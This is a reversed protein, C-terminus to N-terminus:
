RAPLDFSGTFAAASGDERVRWHYRGGQVFPGVTMGAAHVAPADVLLLAFDASRSLEFSYRRGPVGPWRIEVRGDPMPTATGEVAVAAAGAAPSAPLSVASDGPLGELGGADFATVRVQVPGAAVAPPVTFAPGPGRQEHVPQLFGADRALQLRYTQAGAVPVVRLTRDRRAGAEAATQPALQPAPLLAQAQASGNDPLVAGQGARLVLEHKATIDQSVVVEGEIVEGTLQGGEDRVRFHTGRVGLGMSRARIEFQQDPRQKRVQSEVRGEILRLRVTRADVAQVELTSRSPLVTRSGGPLGLTVFADGGTALVDGAQVAMGPTVPQEAGGPRRRWAQGEVAAIVATGDPVLRGDAFYLLRGPQLLRPEGVQNRQQVEPWRQPSQLYQGSIGWLTEGPQVVHPTLNTPPTATPAPAAQQALTASAAFWAGALLLGTRLVLGPSSPSGPSLRAASDM